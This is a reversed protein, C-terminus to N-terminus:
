IRRSRKVTTTMPCTRSWPSCRVSKVAAGRRLAGRFVEEIIKVSRCKEKLASLKMKVSARSLSECLPDGILHITNDILETEERVMREIMAINYINPDCACYDIRESQFHLFVGANQRVQTKAKRSPQAIRRRKFGIVVFDALDNRAKVFRNRFCKGNECM